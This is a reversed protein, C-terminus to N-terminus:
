PLQHESVQGMVADLILRAAPEFSPAFAYRAFAEQIDQPLGAPDRQASLDFQAAGQLSMMLAKALPDVMDASVGTVHVLHATWEASLALLQRKAAFLPEDAVNSEIVAVLRAYMPLFLPTTQAHDTMCRAIQAASDGRAVDQKFRAVVTRMAEIFLLLFLEEKSRVYLYLTGKALGVRKALASMTVGDFGTEDIMGRAASLIMSQREAKQDESIARKINQGVTM